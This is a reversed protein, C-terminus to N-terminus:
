SYFNEDLLQEITFPCTMCYENEQPIRIGKKARKGEKIALKRGNPYAKKIAESLFTKFSPNDNLSDIIRERHEDISNYWSNKMTEPADFQVKLKLLHAILIKLNSILSTKDSKGLDRLEEILHEIDLQDFQREELQNITHNIWLQLDQEYLIKTNKQKELEKSEIM